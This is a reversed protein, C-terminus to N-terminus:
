QIVLSIKYEQVIAFYGLPYIDPQGVNDFVDQNDLDTVDFINGRVTAAPTQFPGQLDGGQEVLQDMYHYFRESAGLISVELETGPEIKRDYFYSFQFAEGQYFTDETALFEGFGFDFVYYNTVDPDDTFTVVVETDDEGSLTGNGQELLDIPVAPAYVTQGLYLRDQHRIYLTFLVDRGLIGTGFGQNTSADPDPVYVGTGPEKEFLFVFGTSIVVNDDYEEIAITVSEAETVPIAEFFNNTLSIKVEVPVFEEDMDVRILAEVLLRPRDNPTDIDVVDECGLLTYMLMFVLFLQKKM